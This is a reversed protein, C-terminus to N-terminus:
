GFIQIILILLAPIQLPSGESLVGGLSQGYIFGRQKQPLWLCSFAEILCFYVLAASMHIQDTGGRRRSSCLFNIKAPTFDTEFISVSLKWEPLRLRTVSVETRRHPSICYFKDTRREEGLLDDSHSLGYPLYSRPFTAEVHPSDLQQFWSGDRAAGRRNARRREWQIDGM